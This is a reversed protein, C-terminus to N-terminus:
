NISAAPQESMNYPVTFAIHPLANRPDHRHLFSAAVMERLTEALQRSGMLRADIFHDFAAVMRARLRSGVPVPAIFRVKNLGYNVGMRTQEIHLSSEFFRPLM